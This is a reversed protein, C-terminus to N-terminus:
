RKRMGGAINQLVPMDLESVDLKDLLDEAEELTLEIAYEKALALLEEATECDRAKESSVKLIEPNKAM